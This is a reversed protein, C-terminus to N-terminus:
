EPPLGLQRRAEARAAATEGQVLLELVPSDLVREWAAAREPPTPLTTKVEERLDDLLEALRGYEEGIVTELRERLRRALLPSAGGTAVALTVPGRSVVAPVYFSCLEPQDAVNLLFGRRAAEAALWANVAANDTAAFILFVGELDEATVPRRALDIAGQAALQELRPTVRPSRVRVQAGADLIGIVKREAVPGGGAVLCTRGALVLSILYPQKM